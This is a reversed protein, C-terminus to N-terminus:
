FGCLNDLVEFYSAHTEEKSDFYKETIDYIEVEVKSDLLDFDVFFDFFKQKQQRRRLEPWGECNEGNM